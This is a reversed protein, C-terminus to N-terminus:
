GVAAMYSKPTLLFSTFPWPKLVPNRGRGWEQKRSKASTIQNDKMEGETIVM